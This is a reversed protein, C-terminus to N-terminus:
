ADIREGSGAGRDRNLIVGYWKLYDDVMRNVDFRERAEAAANNALSQRVSEDTLLHIIADGMTEADGSRVLIGTAKDVGCTAVGGTRDDPVVGGLSRIQEPIGGVASAVVPTGCALAEIVANPFTEMRASHVYIDAARYYDAVRDPDSQFAVYRLEAAGMAESPASEGLAILILPCGWKKTAVRELATRLTPFDKWPNEKAGLAVFLLIKADSRIGLRVRIENRDGPKFVQLNVGNAIVRSDRVAPQLVSSHVKEMLWRSPTAVFLRSRSFIARKQRLNRAAGDARLAYCIDLRPCERCGDKWRECDFSHACHGALLWADHLTLITPAKRSLAPLFRLDFYGGHLNHAHVIDPASPSLRYVFRSGPYDFDEYGKEYAHEQWGNAAMRLLLSLRWGIGPLRQGQRQLQRDMRRCLSAWPRDRRLRPIEFVDADGSRKVGVALWSKHGRDRYGTFLDWGIREAGGLRDFSNIQLVNM